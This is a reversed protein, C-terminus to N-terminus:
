IFPAFNTYFTVHMIKLNDSWQNTDINYYCNWQFKSLGLDTQEEVICWYRGSDKPPFNANNWSRQFSDTSEM